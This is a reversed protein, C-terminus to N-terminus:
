AFARWLALAIAVVIVVLLRMSTRQMMAIFADEADEDWTSEPEGAADRADSPRRTPARHISSM